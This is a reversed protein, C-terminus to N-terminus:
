RQLRRSDYHIFAGQLTYPRTVASQNHILFGLNLGTGTLMMEPVSVTEADWTFEDWSSSDWYGGGGYASLQGTDATGANPSSYDIDPTVALSVPGDAELELAFKRWRKRVRPSKFHNFPLRTFCEIEEGDFSTGKEAEYIYGDDSGFLIREAGTEDEANCICRVPKGYNIQTVKFSMGQQTAVPYCALGTGDSFFLWYQNFRRIITSAIAKSKLKDILKQVKRTVSGSEFGGFASTRSLQIVGRDDLAFAESITQLTYPFAGATEAAVQQQWDDNGSGQLIFTRRRTSMILVGGSQPLLGTVEAGLGRQGAGLSVTYNWPEGVVSHHVQGNRFGMFVRNAHAQILVPNDNEDKSFLPVVLGAQDIEIAPNVGDAGYVRYGDDSGKFNHSVFEFRGGPSLTIQDTDSTATASATAGVKIIAGNPIGPGTLPQVIMYGEATGSWVGEYKLVRLVQATSTDDTIVNGESIENGGGSYKLVSHLPLLEWGATTAKYVLCETADANDRCAYTQDLHRFVGRVPGSGPVVEIFQRYHNAALHKWLDFEDDTDSSYLAEIGTITVGNAPEDQQFSGTLATVAIRNDDAVALIVATAGSTDGTLTDGANLGTTASVEIEWFQSASPAARGDLREFGGIYRYGGNLGPIYNVCELADGPNISMPATALDLSGRFPFYAPTTM